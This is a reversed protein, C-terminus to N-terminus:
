KGQATLVTGTAECTLTYKDTGEVSEIKFEDNHWYDRGGRPLQTWCIVPTGDDKIQGKVNLVATKYTGESKCHVKYTGPEIISSNPVWQPTANDSTFLAATDPRAETEVSVNIDEM